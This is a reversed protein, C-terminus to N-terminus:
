SQIRLIEAAFGERFTPYVPKWGLETKLKRNSVAKNTAGRKPPAPTGLPVSIPFPRNLTASLWEFLARQSVPENDVANYVEGGRGRELVSRIAGVVDQLHIMNLIREGAGELQARGTLFQKLWYGRGPGYIGGVRLIVPNTGAGSADRLVQETELLAKATAAEPETPSTEDVRSGDTQGYVATSSTLILKQPLVAGFWALVNRAGQLYVRRYEDAGGGSAAVCLVVWDYSTSIVPLTEPRTIDAFVPEIGVARLQSATAPDRRLGWVSHGLRVLKAGLPVGVYGCGIVLARM